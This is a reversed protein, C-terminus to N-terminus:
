QALRWVIFAALEILVIYFVTKPLLDVATYNWRYRPLNM